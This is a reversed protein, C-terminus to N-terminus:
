LIKTDAETGKQNKKPKPVKPNKPNPSKLTQSSPSSLQPAKKCKCFNELDLFIILRLWTTQRWELDLDVM